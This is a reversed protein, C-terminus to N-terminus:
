RTPSQSSTAWPTPPRPTLTTLTPPSVPQAQRPQPSTQRAQAQTPQNSGLILKDGLLTRMSREMQEYERSCRPAREQTLRVLRASELYQQPDKGYGYCVLNVMRQETISHEDAYMGANGIKKYWKVRFAQLFLPSDKLVQHGNTNLMLFAAFEDAADEEKGTVPIRHLDFLAHGVEHVLAFVLESALIQNLRAQDYQRGFTKQLAASHATLLEYCIIVERRDRSYYANAQGCSQAVIPVTGPTVVASNLAMALKDLVQNQQLQQAIPAEAATQPPRYAAAFSAFVPNAGVTLALLLMAGLIQKM